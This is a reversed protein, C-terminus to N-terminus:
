PWVQLKAKGSGGDHSEAMLETLAQARYGILNEDVAGIYHVIWGLVFLNLNHGAEHERHDHQAKRHIFGVNGMNFATKQFNVNSALGGVLFFTGTPWDAAVYKGKVTADVLPDTSDGGLKLFDVGLLGVLGLVVSIVLFILGLFLAPWSMPALWSLWGIVGQYVSNQSVARFAAIIGLGFLALGIILGITQNFWLGYINYALVFNMGSNIGILLGRTVAATEHETVTTAPPTASSKQVYYTAGIYIVITAITVVLGSTTTFFYSLYDGMFQFPNGDFSLTPIIKPSDGSFGSTVLHIIALLLVGAWAGFFAPSFGKKVDVTSM